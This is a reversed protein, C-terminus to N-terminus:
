LPFSFAARAKGAPSAKLIAQITLGIAHRCAEELDRGGALYGLIAASLFCGTGHVRKALREHRFVVFESGDFLVDVAEGRLHGGKVLCPVLGSRHIRLAAEKMDEVSRIRLGTLASAEDLNPTILSAQGKVLGLFRPVARKELLTAGSSSRFIPDVVRPISPNAALIRAVAALNELTGTMGTKIGGFRMGEALAEYQSRVLGPPLHFAKKLKAANQATVSTLIGSGSFGLYRFVQIDLGLGAGGSPDFGAISLLTKTM